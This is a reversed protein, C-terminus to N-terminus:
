YFDIPDVDIVWGAPLSGFEELILNPNPAFILIERRFMGKIKSITPIFPGRVDSHPFGVAVSSIASALRTSEQDIYYQNRHRIGLRAIRRFPPYGYTRRWSIEKDMYAASDDNTFSTILDNDLEYGQLIMKGPLNARGARGKVQTLLSFIRQSSRFDQGGSLGELSVVGVLTLFPLNLGKSIMQTGIVIDIEQRELREVLKLHQKAGSVADSDWRAVRAKPFQKTIFDEVRQTGAGIPHLIRDCEPTTCIGDYIQSAGCFHCVLQTPERDSHLTLVLDCRRCKPTCGEDCILFPAFGRRNVLLLIQENRDLAEIILQNLRRSILGTEYRMDVLEIDSVPRRAWPILNGDAQDVVNVQEAMSIKSIEGITSLQYTEPDPTASGYIITCGYLRNMRSAVTRADYRPEQQSQKYSNDHSEDLIILGLNKQPVFVSSRSGIVVLYDGREIAQWEDFIEGRSLGSHMVGVEGPFQEAIRKIMQPTLAIEPVMLLATKGITKLHRICEIYVETKGSGTVGHLLFQQGTDLELSETIVSVASQQQDVLSKAPSRSIVYPELPSRKKFIQIKEVLGKTRLLELARTSSKSSLGYKKIDDRTFIGRGSQSHWELFVRLIGLSERELGTLMRSELYKDLEKDKLRVSIKQEKIELIGQTSLKELSRRWNQNRSRIMDINISGEALVLRLLKADTNRGLEAFDPVRLNQKLAEPTLQFRSELRPKGKAVGLEFRENVLKLKVLARIAVSLRSRPIVQSMQNLFRNEELSKQNGLLDLILQQDESIAFRDRHYQDKLDSSISYFKEPSRLLSAPFFLKLVNWIPTFYYDAMWKALDIQESTLHFHEDDTDSIPRIQDPDFGPMDLPAEVVIGQLLQRGFPVIVFQGVRTEIHDPIEYSFTLGTPNPSNVAVKAYSKIQTPGTM